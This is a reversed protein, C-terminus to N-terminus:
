RGAEEGGAAGSPGDSPARMHLVFTVSDPLAPELGVTVVQPPIAQRVLYRAVSDARRVALSVDDGGGAPVGHLFALQYKLVGSPDRMLARALRRILVKREPRIGDEGPRFLATVPMDVRLTTAQNTEKAKADPVFSEFLSGVEGTLSRPLPLVGLSAPSDAADRPTVIKGKFTRNVSDLVTQTKHTEFESLSNILIFFALLILKLSLLLVINGSAVPKPGVHTGQDM